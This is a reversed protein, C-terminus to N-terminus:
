DLNFITRITTLQTTNYNILLINKEILTVERGDFKYTDM